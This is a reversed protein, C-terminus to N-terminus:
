HASIVLHMRPLMYLLHTFMCGWFLLDQYIVNKEAENIQLQHVMLPQSKSMM